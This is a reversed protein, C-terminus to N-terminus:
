TGDRWWLATITASKANVLEIIMTTFIHDPLNLIILIVHECFLCFFM